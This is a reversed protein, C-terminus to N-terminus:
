RTGRGLADVAGRAAERVAPDPDLRAARLREGMSPDGRRLVGALGGPGAATSAVLADLAALRVAPARDALARECLARVLAPDAAATATPRLAATVALARVGESADDRAIAALAPRDGAAPGLTALVQLASARTGSDRAAGLVDMTAGRAASRAEARHESRDRANGDGEGSLVLLARVALTRVGADVDGLRAAAARVARDRLARGAAGSPARAALDEIAALASDRDSARAADPAELRDVWGALDRGWARTESAARWREAGWVLPILVAVGALVLATARLMASVVLRRAARDHAAAAPLRDTAARPEARAPM